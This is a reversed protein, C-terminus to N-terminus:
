IYIKLIQFNYYICSLRIKGFIYYIIKIEDEGCLNLLLTENEKLISKLEM